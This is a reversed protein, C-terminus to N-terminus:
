DVPPPVEKMINHRRQGRTKAYNRRLRSLRAESKAYERKCEKCQGDPAAGHANRDHGRPCRTLTGGRDLMGAHSLCMPAYDKESTGWSMMKGHHLGSESPGTRLWAWVKAKSPCGPASCAFDAARGAKRVRKHVADYKTSKM